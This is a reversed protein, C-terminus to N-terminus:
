RPKVKLTRFPQGRHQDLIVDAQAEDVGAMQALEAYADAWSVKGRQEFWTVQAFESELVENEGMAVKILQELARKKKAAETARERAKLLDFVVQDEKPGARTSFPIVRHTVNLWDSYAGTGDPPPPACPVVHHEWFLSCARLLEEGAREDATLRVLRYDDGGVVAAIDWETAGTMAMLFQAELAYQPPPNLDWRRDVKFLVGRWGRVAPDEYHMTFLPGSLRLGHLHRQVHMSTSIRSLNLIPREAEVCGALYEEKLLESLALRWRSPPCQWPAPAIARLTRDHSGPQHLEWLEIPTLSDHKGVVAACTQETIM